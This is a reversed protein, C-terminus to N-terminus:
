VPEDIWNESLSKNLDLVASHAEEFALKSVFLTAQLGNLRRRIRKAINKKDSILGTM